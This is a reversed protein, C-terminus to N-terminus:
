ILEKYDWYKYWKQIMKSILQNKDLWKEKFNNIYKLIKEQSDVINNETILKEITESNFWSRILNYKISKISKTKSKSIIKEEIYKYSKINEWENKNALIKEIDNKQFLKESLKNIIFQSTKGKDLLEQIKTELLYEENLNEKIIELVEAILENNQTKEKLKKILKWISPYYKLYYWLAYNKLTEENNYNITKKM